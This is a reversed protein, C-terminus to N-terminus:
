YIIEVREGLTAVPRYNYNGVAAVRFLEPWHGNKSGQQLEGPHNRGTGKLLYYYIEQFSKLTIGM